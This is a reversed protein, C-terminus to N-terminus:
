LSERRPGPDVVSDVTLLAPAKVFWRSLALAAIAAGNVLLLIRPSFRLSVIPNFLLVMAAMVIMWVYQEGEFARLFILIATACVVFGVLMQVSSTRAFMAALLLCVISLPVM